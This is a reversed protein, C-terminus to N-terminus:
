NQRNKLYEALGSLFRASKTSPLGGTQAIRAAEDCSARLQQSVFDLAGCDRVIDQVQQLSEATIHQNGLQSVLLNAQAESALELTKLVLLTRKGERLDDIPNKGTTAASGFLGIVDDSLQFARGAALGYRELVDLANKPAGALIAGLQLPNVFSYYATKWLLVHEVAKPQRTMTSQNYLDHIQGHCTTALLRNLNELGATRREAELPLTAVITMAMHLGTMASLTAMSEGFHVTDGHLETSTHWRELARHASPGGRRLDSQDNIDDTILLYAHVMELALAMLDVVEQNNGGFMRYAQEALTARIRKGGRSMIDAFARLVHTSADGYCEEVIQLERQWYRAIVDDYHAKRDNLTTTFLTIDSM